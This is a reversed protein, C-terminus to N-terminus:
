DAQPNQYIFSVPREASEGVRDRRGSARDAGVPLVIALHVSPVYVDGM